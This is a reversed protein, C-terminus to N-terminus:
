RMQPQGLDDKRKWNSGGVGSEGEDILRMGAKIGERPKRFFFRVLSWCESGLLLWGFLGTVGVAELFKSDLEAGAGWACELPAEAV